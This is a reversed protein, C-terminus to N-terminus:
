TVAELDAMPWPIGRTAPAAVLTAPLNNGSLDQLTGGYGPWTRQDRLDYFVAPGAPMRYGPYGLLFYSADRAETATLVRNYFAWGRVPTLAMYSGVASHAGVLLALTNTIAGVDLTGTAVQIGDRYLVHATPSSTTVLAHVNGDFWVPSTEAVADGVTTAGDIRLRLAQVGPTRQIVWGDGGSSRKSIAVASDTDTFAAAMVISFPGSGPNLLANDATSIYQSSGNTVIGAPLNHGAVPARGTEVMRLAAQIRRGPLDEGERLMIKGLMRDGLRRHLAMVRGSAAAARFGRLQDGGTDQLLQLRAELERPPLESPTRTVARDRGLIRYIQTADDESVSQGFLVELPTNLWPAPNSVLWPSDATIQNRSDVTSLASELGTVSNCVSVAYDWGDGWAGGSPGRWGAEYDVVKIHQAEVTAATYGTPVTIEFALEWAQAAGRSPRRWVKYCKFATTLSTATWSIEVRPPVLLSM